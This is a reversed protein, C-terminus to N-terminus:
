RTGSERARRRVVIAHENSPHERDYWVDVKEGDVILDTMPMREWKKVFRRTGAADTFAYTVTTLLSGAEPTLVDYGQNTVVGIVPRSASMIESERAIVRIRRRRAWASHGLLLIGVAALIVVTSTPSPLRVWAPPLASMSLGLAAGLVALGLPASIDLLRPARPVLTAWRIIALTVVAIGPFTLVLALISSGDFTNNLDANAIMRPLTLAALAPLVFSVAAPWVLDRATPTRQERERRSADPDVTSM